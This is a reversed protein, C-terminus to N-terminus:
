SVYGKTDFRPVRLLLLLYSVNSFLKIIKVDQVDFFFRSFTGNITSFLIRVQINNCIKYFSGIQFMFILIEFLIKLAKLDLAGVMAM